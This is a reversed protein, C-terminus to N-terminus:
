FASVGSVAVATTFTPDSLVCSSNPDLESDDSGDGSSGDDYLGGVADDIASGDGGNPGGGFNGWSVISLNVTGGDSSGGSADIITGSDISGDRAGDDVIM